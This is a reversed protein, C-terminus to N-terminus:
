TIMAGNGFFTRTEADVHMCRIDMIWTKNLLYRLKGEDLEYYVYGCWEHLQTRTEADVHM